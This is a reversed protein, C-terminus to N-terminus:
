IKLEGDLIATKRTGDPFIFDLQKCTIPNGKAYVIDIHCVKEPSSFEKVGIKGGFHDSRGYAWHFGAKEDELVNGTVVAKDNCGIAVEAINRMAPEEFFERHKKNAIAGDGKVDVIQNNKVVLVVTENKFIAPIEGATKSNIVENPCVCVEGSPLNMVREAEKGLDPHLLGNDQFVTNNDSIDFYCNHGTSFEVQIGEAKEFLPALGSCTDAIKSYDASLATEQMSETVGPMSAIRLYDYKEAYKCLPATASFEPMSIIITSNNFIEEIYILNGDQSVLEPLEGNDIGSAQYATIPNTSIGHKIAFKKIQQNWATALKRRSIWEANDQIHGHPLDYMITVVDGRQPAFVDTFLKELNFAM